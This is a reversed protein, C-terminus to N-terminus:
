ITIIAAVIIIGFVVDIIGLVLSAIAFGIGKYKAPNRIIKSLSIAGFITAVLGFPIAAVILGILGSVFGALGLGEIQPANDQPLINAYIPNASNSINEALPQTYSTSNALANKKYMKERTEFTTAKKKTSLEIVQPTNNISAVLIRNYEVKTPISSKEFDSYYSYNTKIDSDSVSKSLLVNNRKGSSNFSKLNRNKAAKRQSTAFIKRDPKKLNSTAKPNSNSRPLVPCNVATKSSSCSLLISMVILISNITMLLNHKKM